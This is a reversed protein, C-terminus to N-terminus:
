DQCLEQDLREAILMLVPDVLLMQRHPSGLHICEPDYSIASEPPPLECREDYLRDCRLVEFGHNLRSPDVRLLGNRDLSAQQIIAESQREDLGFDEREHHSFVAALRLLISSVKIRDERYAKLREL